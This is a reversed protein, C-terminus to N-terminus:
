HPLRRYPWLARHQVHQARCAFRQPRPAPAPIDPCTQSACPHPHQANCLAGSPGGAAAAESTRADSTAPVTGVNMIQLIM